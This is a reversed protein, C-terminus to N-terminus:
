DVQASEDSDEDLGGLVGRSQDTGWTEQNFSKSQNPAITLWQWDGVHVMRAVLAIQGAHYAVHAVSRLLAQEVSHSEGRIHVVADLDSDDLGDLAQQLIAWGNDFYELLPARTGSWDTFETDRCRSEKEGDTTLFDTFRSELNGGLHRLIIAVSNVNPAPRSFFERDNLQSVCGDIMNRYAIFSQRILGLHQPEPKM